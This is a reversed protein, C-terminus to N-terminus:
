APPMASNCRNLPAVTAALLNVARASSIPREPGSSGCYPIRGGIWFTAAHLDDLVPFGQVYPRQRQRSMESRAVCGAARGPCPLGALWSRQRFMTYASLRVATDASLKRKEAVRGVRVDHLVELLAEGCQAGQGAVNKQGRM